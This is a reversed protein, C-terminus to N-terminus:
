KKSTKKKTSTSKTASVTTKKKVPKIEDAQLPEVKESDQPKIDVVTGIRVMRDADTDDILIEENAGYLVSKYMIRYPAIFKKM